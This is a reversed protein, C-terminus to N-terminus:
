TKKIAQRITNISSSVSHKNKIIRAVENKSRSPKTHWCEDAWKQWKQNRTVTSRAAASKKRAEKGSNFVKQGLMIIDESGLLEAIHLCYQAQFAHYSAQYSIAEDDYYFQKSRKLQLITEEEMGYAVKLIKESKELFKLAQQCEFIIRYCLTIQDANEETRELYIRMADIDSTPLIDENNKIVSEAKSCWHQLLATMFGRCMVPNSTYNDILPLGKVKEISVLGKKSTTFNDPM